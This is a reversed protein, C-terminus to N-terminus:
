AVRRALLHALAMGPIQEAQLFSASRSSAELPFPPLAYRDRVKGSTGRFSLVRRWSLMHSRREAAAAVRWVENGYAIVRWPM